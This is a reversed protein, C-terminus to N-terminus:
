PAIAAGSGSNLTKIVNDKKFTTSTELISNMIDDYIRESQKQKLLQSVAMAGSFGNGFKNSLAPNNQVAQMGLKLYEIEKQAIQGAVTKQVGADEFHGILKLSSLIDITSPNQASVDNTILQSIKQQGEFSNSMYQKRTLL